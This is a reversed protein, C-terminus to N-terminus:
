IVCESFSYFDWLLYEDALMNSMRTITYQKVKVVDAEGPLEQPRRLKEQRKMNLQYTADGFVELQHLELVQVFKDVEAAKDDEDRVLYTAKM